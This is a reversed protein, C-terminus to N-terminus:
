QQVVTGDSVAVPLRASHTEDGQEVTVTIVSPANRVVESFSVAPKGVLDGDEDYATDHSLGVIKGFLLGIIGRTLGLDEEGVRRKLVYKTAEPTSFEATSEWSEEGYRELSIASAREGGPSVVVEASDGQARTWNPDLLIDGRWHYGAIGVPISGLGGLILQRRNM